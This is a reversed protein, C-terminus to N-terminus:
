ITVRVIKFKYKIITIMLMIIAMINDDEVKHCKVKDNFVTEYFIQM